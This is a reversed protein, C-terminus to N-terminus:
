IVKVVANLFAADQLNGPEVQCKWATMWQDVLDSCVFLPFIVGLFIAPYVHFVM